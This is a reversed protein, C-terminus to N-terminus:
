AFGRDLAFVVGCVVADAPMEIVRNPWQPNLAQLYRKQGEVLLQKFTVENEGPLRVIVFARHRAERDPDVLIIDGERFSDEGGVNLMSDGRVRLAYARPGHPHTTAIYSEADGPMLNDIAECFAGAQVWSILPLGGPRIDPAPEVNGTSSARRSLRSDLQQIEATATGSSRALAVGTGDVVTGREKPGLQDKLWRHNVGLAEAIAESFESKKSDRRILASLTGPELDPVRALLDVQQWRLEALREAIRAGMAM